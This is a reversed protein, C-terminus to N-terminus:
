RPGTSLGEALIKAKDALNFARPFDKVALAEKAKSLFNQITLLSEQEKQSLKQQDLSKIIHETAQIRTEAGQRLRDAEEQGVRPSLQPPPVVGAKQDVCGAGLVALLIVGCLSKMVPSEGRDNKM